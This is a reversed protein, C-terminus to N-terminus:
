NINQLKLSMIVGDTWSVITIWLCTVMRMTKIVHQYGKHFEYIGKCVNKVNKIKCNRYM